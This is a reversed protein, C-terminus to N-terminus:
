VAIRALAAELRAATAAAAERKQRTEEVVGEAARSVFAPNALKQDLRRIEERQRAIERGLRAREAALDIVGELPLVLTAEGVVGQAAGRPVEGAIPTIESLRALRLVAARWRGLRALTEGHADKLHAAIERGPPIGMEGRITRVESVLAIVWAVEAEAAPDRPLSAAEPWPETM